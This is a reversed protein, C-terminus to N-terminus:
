VVTQVGCFPPSPPLPPQLRQSSNRLWSEDKPPPCTRNETYGSWLTIRIQVRGSYLDLNRLITRDRWIECDYEKVNM